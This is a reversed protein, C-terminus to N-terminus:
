SVLYIHFLSESPGEDRMKERHRAARQGGLGELSEKQREEGWGHGAKGPVPHVDSSLVCLLSVGTSPGGTWM